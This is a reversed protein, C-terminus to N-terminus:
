RRRRSAVGLVVLMTLALVSPEPVVSIVGSSALASTNWTLGNSLQPLVFGAFSGTTNAADFLNFADGESVTFGNLLEISLVGGLTLNGTVHIYDYESGETLGAIQMQTTSTSTLALHNLFTLTGPSNGPALFGEITTNGYIRGSGGLTGGAEIRVAGSGTASGATNNALLTAGDAVTVTEEGAFGSASGAGTLTLTGGAVHIKSAGVVGGSFLGGNMLVVNGTFSGSLESHRSVILRGVGGSSFVSFNGTGSVSGITQDFGNTLLTGGGAGILYNRNSTTAGTLSLSGGDLTVSGSAAGLNSDSTASLTGGRVFTGADYTNAGSLILTGSGTKIFSGGASTLNAAMTRVTSTNSEIRYQQNAANSFRSSFDPVVNADMQLTGGEFSILGGDGLSGASGALVKGQKLITAGAYQANTLVLTGTGEQTVSGTGTIANSYSTFDSRNFILRGSNAIASTNSLYGTTGGTGVQFVGAGGITIAGTGAAYGTAVTPTVRYDDAILKGGSIFAGGTYDSTGKLTTTGALVNVKLAYRLQIGTQADNDFVYNTGTHNFEITSNGGAMGEVSKADLFGAAGGNGIKLIATSAGGDGVTTDWGMLIRNSVRLKGSDAVVVTGTGNFGIELPGQNPDTLARAHVLSGAGTVTLTGDDGAVGGVRTGYLLAVGGGSVTLSSKGSLTFQNGVNSTGIFKSGAGDILMTGKDGISSASTNTVVAGERIEFLGTGGVTAVSLSGITATTGTGTFTAAGNGAANRGVFLSSANLSGGGDVLITGSSGRGNYITGATLNGGSTIHITGKGGNGNFIRDSVIWSTGAGTITAVTVDNAGAALSLIVEINRVTGGDLLASSPSSSYNGLYTAGGAEGIENEGTHTFGAMAVAPSFLVGVLLCGQWVSTSRFPHTIMLSHRFSVPAAM